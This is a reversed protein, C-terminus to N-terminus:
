ISSIIGNEWDNMFENISDVFDEDHQRKNITCHIVITDCYNDTTISWSLSNPCEPLSFRIGYKLEERNIKFEGWVCYISGSQQQDLMVSHISQCLVPLNHITLLQELNITNHHHATKIEKFFEM